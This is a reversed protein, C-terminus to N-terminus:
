KLCVSIYAAAIEKRIEYTNLRTEASLASSRGFRSGTLPFGVKQLMRNPLSNDARPECIIMKLNYARYFELASKCFLGGGMGKGREAEKWMHLHMGGSEGPAIDKLSSFGVPVASVEWVLYACDLSGFPSEAIVQLEALMQAADPFNERDLGMREIDSASLNYLYKIIEIADGKQMSRVNLTDLKM